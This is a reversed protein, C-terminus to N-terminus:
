CYFTKEERSGRGRERKGERGPQQQSADDNLEKDGPSFHSCHKSRSRERARESATPSCRTTQRSWPEVMSSHWLQHKTSIASEM